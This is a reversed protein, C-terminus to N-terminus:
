RSQTCAGRATGVGGCQPVRHHVRGKCRTCGSPRDGQTEQRQRAAPAGLGEEPHLMAPHAPWLRRVHWPVAGQRLAPRLVPHAAHPSLGAPLRDGGCACLRCSFPCFVHVKVAVGCMLRWSLKVVCMAFLLCVLLEPAFVSACRQYQLEWGCVCWLASWVTCGVCHCVAAGVCACVCGRMPLRLCVILRACAHGVKSM